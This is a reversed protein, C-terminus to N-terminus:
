QVKGGAFKVVKAWKVTEDAVLKGFEAPSMPMVEGGLEHFREKLKPNALDGVTKIHQPNGSEVMIEAQNSAFRLLGGAQAINATWRTYRFEPLLRVRGIPAELGAGAWLGPYFRKRLESPSGTDIPSTTVTQTMPTSWSRFRTDSVM